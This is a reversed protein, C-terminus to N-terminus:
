LDSLLHFFDRFLAPVGHRFVLDHLFAALLHTKGVGPKGMLLIGKEGRAYDEALMRLTRFAELNNRDSQAASLRADYYKAPIAAENYLRIRARRQECACMRVLDRGFEDREFLYRAGRCLLCRQSCVCLSAQAYEGAPATVVGSGRCRPCATPAAFDPAKGEMRDAPKM